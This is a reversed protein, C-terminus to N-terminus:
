VREDGVFLTRVSTVAAVPLKEYLHPFLDAGGELNEFIVKTNLRTSDIELVVLDHRNFYYHNAVEWIQASTSCHIFGDQAYGSPTYIGLPKQSLWEQRTTIHYILM